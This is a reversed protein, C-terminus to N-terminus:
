AYGLSGVRVRIIGVVGLRAPTIGYSNSHVRRGIHTGSHIWAFELSDPQVLGLSGWHIGIGVRTFWHSM